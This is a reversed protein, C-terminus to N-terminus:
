IARLWIQVFGFNCSSSKTCLTLKARTVNKCTLLFIFFFYFIFSFYYYNFFFFCTIPRPYPKPTIFITFIFIKNIFIVIFFLERGLTLTLLLLSLLFNFKLKFILGRLITETCFRRSMCFHTWPEYVLTSCELLQWM